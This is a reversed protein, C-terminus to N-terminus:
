MAHLMKLSHTPLVIAGCAALADLHTKLFRLTVADDVDYWPTLLHTKLKAKRAAAVTQELVRETSWEIGDLIRVTFGSGQLRFGILYYGGDTSPGLVLDNQALAAFAEEVLRAPLSPSDSGIIVTRRAGQQFSHAFANRLREGLDRGEQPVFEFGNADQGIAKRLLGEGDHPTFAIVRCDVKRVRRGMELTDRVFAIYLKRVRGAPLTTQLRTKVTGLRPAKAFIVLCNSVLPSFLCQLSRFLACFQELVLVVVLVIM